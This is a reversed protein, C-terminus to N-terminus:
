KNTWKKLHGSQTLHTRRSQVAWTTLNYVKDILIPVAFTPIIKIEVLYFVNKKIKKAKWCVCLGSKSGKLGKLLFTRPVEGGRGCGRQRHSDCRRPPRLWVALPTHSLGREPCFFGRIWRPSCLVSKSVDPCYLVDQFKVTQLNKKKQELNKKSARETLRLKADSKLFLAIWECWFFVNNM